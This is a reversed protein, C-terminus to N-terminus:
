LTIRMETLYRSRSFMYMAVSDALHHNMKIHLCRLTLQPYADGVQVPVLGGLFGQLLVEALKARDGAADDALLLHIALHHGPAKAEDVHGQLFFYVGDDALVDVSALDDVSGTHFDFRDVDVSVYIRRINKLSGKVSLKILM